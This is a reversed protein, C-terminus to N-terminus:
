RRLATSRTCNPEVNRRFKWGLCTNHNLILLAHIPFSSSPANGIHDVMYIKAMRPQKFPFVM